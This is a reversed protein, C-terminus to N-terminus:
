EFEQSLVEPQIALRGLERRFVLLEATGPPLPTFHSGCLTLGRRRMFELAWSRPIPQYFSPMRIWEQVTEDDLCDETVIDFAVAGGPRVVRAMETLYGATAFFEAYVFLKQAHVFDVSGDPTQSLTRGDAERMVVNPLQRLRPLWDKATEYIEYHAPHAVAIIEEAFRGTGPGIELITDCRDPLDALKLMALVLEPTAGPKAFTQDMYAGLPLGAKRAAAMIKRAPLFDKIAPDASTGPVLQVHLPRLVTNISNALQARISM